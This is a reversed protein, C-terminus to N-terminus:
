ATRSILRHRVFRVLHLAVGAAAYTGALIVLAYESYRWVVALVLCLLVIALSPQKRTWPIEKFSSYRITSTMLAGLGAALLFWAVSWRWDHLPEKFGHVLAAIVGAAAPTPM